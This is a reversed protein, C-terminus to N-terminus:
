NYLKVAEDLSLLAETNTTGSFLALDAYKGLHDAFAQYSGFSIVAINREDLRTLPIVSRENDLLVTSLPAKSAQQAYSITFVNLLPIGALLFYRILRNKPPTIMSAHEQYSHLLLGAIIRTRKKTLKTRYPKGDDM